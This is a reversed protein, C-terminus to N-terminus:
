AVEIGKETIEMPHLFTDHASGKFKEISIARKLKSGDRYRHLKIDGRALLNEFEIKGNEPTELTLLSTLKMETLFRIFSRIGVRVEFDEMCFYRLATLSDIVVRRFRRRRFEQKLMQLLSHVTVDLSNIEDSKRIEYPVESMTKLVSESSIELIPTPEPKRIDSNADIVYIGDIDWGLSEMNARIENPPEELAVILGNEHNKLGEMLFHTALITKGTGPAGSIIYPRKPILGGHLMIDLNDIGFRLRKDPKFGDVKTKVKPRRGKKATQIKVTGKGVSMGDSTINIPRIFEDHISGRLKEISIARRMEHTSQDLWKYLRIDGRSLLFESDLRDLTPKETVILCTAEMESLFRFFSQIYKMWDEGKMGFLKLATISDVVVRTYRKGERELHVNYEQKMMKQVSHLSVERLRLQETMRLESIEGMDKVDLVTGVDIISPTKRFRKIDPTADLIKIQDLNWGFSEANSKIETPPEDMAVYMVSEDKKLGNLIFQLCFTTKGSSTPGSLIYPRRSILGGGLMQDLGDVGTNVREVHTM